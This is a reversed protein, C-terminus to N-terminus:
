FKITYTVKAVNVQQKQVTSYSYNTVMAFCVIHGNGGFSAGSTRPYPVNSDGFRGGVGFGGGTDVYIDSSLRRAGDADGAPDVGGGGGGDLLASASSPVSSTATPSTLHPKAAHSPPPPQLKEGRELADIMSALQRLVAELCPQQRRALQSSLSRLTKFIASRTPTDLSTGTYFM